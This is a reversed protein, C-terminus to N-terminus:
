PSVDLRYYGRATREVRRGSDQARRILKRVGGGTLGLARGIENAHRPEGHGLLVVLRAVMGRETLHQTRCPRCRRYPSRIVAGCDPCARQSIRQDLPKPKPGPLATRRGQQTPLAHFQAPTMRSRLSDHKLEVATRSCYLCDIDVLPSDATPVHARLLRADCNGCHTPALHAESPWFISPTEADVTSRQPLPMNTYRASLVVRSPARYAEGM